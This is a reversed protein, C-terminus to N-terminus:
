IVFEDVGGLRTITNAGLKIAIGKQKCKNILDTRARSTYYYNHEVDLELGCLWAIPCKPKNWIIDGSDTLVVDCHKKSLFNFLSKVNGTPNSTIRFRSKGMFDTRSLQTYVEMESPKNLVRITLKNMTGTTAAVWLHNATAAIIEAKISKM